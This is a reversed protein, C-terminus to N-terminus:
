VTIHLKQFDTNKMIQGNIIKSSALPRIFVIPFSTTLDTLKGSQKEGNLWLEKPIIKFLVNNPKLSQHFVNNKYDILLNDMQVSGLPVFPKQTIESLYRTHNIDKPIFDNDLFTIEKNKLSIIEFKLNQEMLSKRYQFYSSDEPIIQPIEQIIFTKDVNVM